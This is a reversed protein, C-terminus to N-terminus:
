GGSARLEERAAEEGFYISVALHALDPVAAAFDPAGRLLAEIVSQEIVNRWSQRTALKLTAASETRATIELAQSPRGLSSRFVSGASSAATAKQLDSDCSM